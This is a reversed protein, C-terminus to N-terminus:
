VLCMHVCVYLGCVSACVCVCVWSVGDDIGLIRNGMDDVHGGMLQLTESPKDRNGTQRFLCHWIFYWNQRYNERGCAHLSMDLNVCVCVCVCVYVCVCM